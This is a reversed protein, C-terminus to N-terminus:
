CETVGGEDAASLGSQGLSEQHAPPIEPFLCASPHGVGLRDELTPVEGACEPQAKWCRNRFACGSPPNLPSPPDGGLLPRESVQRTAPHSVPIAQLLAQTYPHSPRVFVDKTPGIEVVRGLYMVAVRHSGLDHSVLIQALGMKDRISSLLNLIQAQVSVDLASVPEDLILLEPHISIARAIAIRQRQGGSFEHAFRQTLSGDLGVQILLEAARDRRDSRSLSEHVSLPETVIQQVTM